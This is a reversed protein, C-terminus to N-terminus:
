CVTFHREAILFYASLGKVEDLPHLSIMIFSPYTAHHMFLRKYVQRPVDGFLIKFVSINYLRVHLTHYFLECCFLHGLSQDAIQLMRKPDRITARMMHALRSDDLLSGKPLSKYFIIFFICHFLQLHLPPSPYPPYSLYPKMTKKSM